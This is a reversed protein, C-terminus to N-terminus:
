MFHALPHVSRVKYLSGIRNKFERNGMDQGSWLRVSFSLGRRDGIAHIMVTLGTREAKFGDPKLEDMSSIPMGYEADRYADIMGDCVRKHVRGLPICM